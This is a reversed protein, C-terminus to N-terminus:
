HGLSFSGGLPKSFGTTGGSCCTRGSTPGDSVSMANSYAISEVGSATDGDYELNDLDLGSLDLPETSGM